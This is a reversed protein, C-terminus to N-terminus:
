SYIRFSIWRRRVARRFKPTVRRHHLKSQQMLHRYRDDPVNDVETVVVQRGNVKTPILLYWQFFSPHATRSVPRICLAFCKRIIESTWLEKGDGHAGVCLGVIM